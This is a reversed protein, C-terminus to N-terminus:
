VENIMSTNLKLQAQQMPNYSQMKNALVVM